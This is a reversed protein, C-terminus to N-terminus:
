YLLYPEVRDIWDPTQSWRRLLGPLDEPQDSLTQRIDFQGVLRDFHGYGPTNAATPYPLWAFEQPHLAIVDALLRLGTMVPRSQKPQLAHLMVGGCVEGAYKSASPTFYVPRAVVGPLQHSNFRDSL